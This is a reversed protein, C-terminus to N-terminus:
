QFRFFPDPPSPFADSCLWNSTTNITTINHSLVFWPPISGSFLGMEPRRCPAHLPPGAAFPVNPALWAERRGFTPPGTGGEHGQLGGSSRTERVKRSWNRGWSRLGHIDLEIHQWWKRDESPAHRSNSSRTERVKRSLKRSMQETWPYGARRRCPRRIEMDLRRDMPGEPLRDLSQRSVPCGQVPLGELKGPAVLEGLQQILLVPELFGKLFQELDLHQM